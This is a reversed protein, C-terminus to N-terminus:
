KVVTLQQTETQGGTELRLFYTGSSLGSLDLRLERRGEAKGKQATRVRRGLVDYMQLTAEQREPVAFRVTAEERAPNPFTKKLQLERVTREVEIPDILTASGDSDVQRLRYELRDAAFPLDADTFRYSRAENTTGGSAKSEVFGVERWEGEEGSAARRQVEFGANNKESATQWTLRVGGETTAAEFGAIEVPLVGSVGTTRAVQPRIRYDQSGDATWGSGAHKSSRGDPSGDDVSISMEDSSSTLGVVLHYDTGSKLQADIESLEFHNWSYPVLHEGSYTTATKKMSPLGNGNDTWVELTLSDKVNVSESPRLFVGTLNGDTSSTFRVAIKDDGTLQASGTSGWEDYTSVERNARASSNVTRVLAELVNAKGGGWTNNPVSGTFEDTTSASKLLTQIESPTLNPNEQFLLAVAGAVVPSSMSTGSMLRHNGGPLVFGSITGVDGSHASAVNTGPAAVEPKIRGDRTPGRSSFSAIDGRQGVAAGQHTGGFQGTWTRRHVYAGVAIAKKSTGPAGVTYNVNWAEPPDIRNTCQNLWNDFRIKSDSSNKLNIVWEGEALDTTDGDRVYGGFFLPISRDGNNEHVSNRAFLRGEGEITDSIVSPDPERTVTKGSPSTVTATVEGGGRFWVEHLVGTHRSETVTFRIERSNGAEIAGNGHTTSGDGANGASNVVIKGPGGIDNAPQAWTGTGDRPTYGYASASTNVVVPKGVEDAVQECYAMGDIPNGEGLPAKVAVIDAEPAMGAYKRTPHSGGNGAFIGAIHTGHGDTDETKVFGAPTSDLEDEIDSRTYEVGFNYGSPSSGGTSSPDLTQDWVRLIRSRTTDEIGRFDRHSWDIGSDVICAIVGEGTYETNNVLGEQLSRAGTLGAAVGDDRRGQSPAKIHDVEEMRAVRLLETASIRATVFNSFESNVEIGAARLAEPRDTYIAVGYLDEGRSTKGVPNLGMIERMERHEGAKKSYASKVVAQLRPGLRGLQEDTLDQGSVSEPSLLALLLFVVTTLGKWNM